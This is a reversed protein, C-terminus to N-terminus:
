PLKMECKHKFYRKPMKNTKPFDNITSCYLKHFLQVGRLWDAHLLKTMSIILIKITTGLESIIMNYRLNSYRMKDRINKQKIVFFLVVGGGRALALHLAGGGWYIWGLVNSKYPSPLPQCLYV